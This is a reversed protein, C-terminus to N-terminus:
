LNLKYKKNINHSIIINDSNINNHPINKSHLCSLGKLIQKVIYQILNIYNNPSLEKLHPSIEKISLSNFYNLLLFIYNNQINFGLCTNIYPKINPITNLYKLLKQQNKVDTSNINHSYNNDYSNNNNNNLNIVKLIQRNKKTSKTSKKKSIIVFLHYRGDFGLYKKIKYKKSNNKLFLNKIKSLETNTKTSNKFNNISYNFINNTNTNNTINLNSM